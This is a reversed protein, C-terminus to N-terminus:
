KARERRKKKGEGKKDKEKKKRKKKEKELGRCKILIIGGSTAIKTEKIYIYIHTPDFSM